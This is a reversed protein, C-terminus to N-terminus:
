QTEQACLVSLDECVEQLHDNAEELKRTYEKIMKESQKKQSEWYDSKNTGIWIGDSIELLIIDHTEEGITIKDAYFPDIKNLKRELLFWPLYKYYWKM